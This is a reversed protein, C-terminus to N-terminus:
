ENMDGSQDETVWDELIENVLKPVNEKLASMIRITEDESIQTLDPCDEHEADIQYDISVKSQDGHSEIVKMGDIRVPINGLSSKVQFYIPNGDEDQFPIVREVQNDTTQDQEMEGQQM